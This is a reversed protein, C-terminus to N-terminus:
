TQHLQKCPGSVHAALQIEPYKSSSENM